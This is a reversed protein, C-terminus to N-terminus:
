QTQKGWLIHEEFALNWGFIVSLDKESFVHELMTDGLRYPHFHRINELTLRLTKPHFRLNWFKSWEELAHINNQLLISNKLSKESNEFTQHRWCFTFKQWSGTLYRYCPKLPYVTWYQYFNDLGSCSRMKKTEKLTKSPFLTLLRPSVLTQRSQRQLQLIIWCSLWQQGEMKSLVM